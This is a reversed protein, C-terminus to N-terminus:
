EPGALTLWSRTTNTADDEAEYDALKLLQGPSVLTHGLVKFEM